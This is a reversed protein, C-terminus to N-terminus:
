RGSYDPIMESFIEAGYVDEVCRGFILEVDNAQRFMHTMRAIPEVLYQPDEYQTKIVLRNGDETLRLTEILKADASMPWGGFTAGLYATTEVVLDGDADFRGVSHGEYSPLANASDRGDLYIHRVTGTEGITVIMDDTQVFRVAGSIGAGFGTINQPLCREYPSSPPVQNDTMAQMEAQGTDNLPPQFRMKSLEVFIDLDAEILSAAFGIQQERSPAPIEEPVGASLPAWGTNHLIIPVGAAIGADVSLWEMEVGWVGTYNMQAQPSATADSDDATENGGCAALALPMCLLLVFDTKMKNGTM